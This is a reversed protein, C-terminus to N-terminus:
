ACCGAAVAAAVARRRHRRRGRRFIAGDSRAWERGATGGPIAPASDRYNRAALRAVAGAPRAPRSRIPRRSMRVAEPRRLEGARGAHALSRWAAGDTPQRGDGAREDDRTFRRAWRCRRRKANTTLTERWRMLVIAQSSRGAHLRRRRRRGRRAKRRPARATSTPWRRCRRTARSAQARDHCAALRLRSARSSARISTSPRERHPACHEPGSRRSSGQGRRCLQVIDSLARITRQAARRLRLALSPMARASSPRTAARLEEAEATTTPGSCPDCAHASGPIAGAVADAVRRGDRQPGRARTARQPRTASPKVRRPRRRAAHRPARDSRALRALCCRSRAGPSSAASLISCSANREPRGMVPARAPRAPGVGGIDPATRASSCADGAGTSAVCPERGQADLVRRLLLPGEDLSGARLAVACGRARTATSSPPSKPVRRRECAAAADRLSRRPLLSLRTSCPISKGAGTEGTLVTFGPASSSRSRRSSPSIAFPFCAFCRNSQGPAFARAGIIAPLTSESRQAGSQRAIRTVSRLRPSVGRKRRPSSSCRREQGLAAQPSADRLSRPDRRICCACDVRARRVVVRDGEVLAFHAQGDCHLSADKGRLLALEIVASDRVATPRNTLAHPAVPVLLLAAVTPDVIPGRASLAYATSGTPTAVILGDARM